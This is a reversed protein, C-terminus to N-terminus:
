IPDDASLNVAKNGSGVAQSAGLLAAIPTLGMFLILMTQISESAGIAMQLYQAFLIAAFFIAHTFKGIPAVKSVIFGLLFSVGCAFCLLSWLFEPPFVKQPDSTVVQKFAEQELQLLEFSEPFFLKAIVVLGIVLLMANAIYAGAIIMFSKLFFGPPLGSLSDTNERIM